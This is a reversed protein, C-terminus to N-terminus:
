AMGKSYRSLNNTRVDNDGYLFFCMVENSQKASLFDM